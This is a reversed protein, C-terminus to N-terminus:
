PDVIGGTCCDHRKCLVCFLEDELVLNKTSRKLNRKTASCLVPPTSSEAGAHGVVM